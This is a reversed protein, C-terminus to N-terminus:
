WNEGIAARAFHWRRQSPIDDVSQSAAIWDIPSFAGALLALFVNGVQLGVLIGVFLGAVFIRMRRVIERVIGAIILMGGVAHHRDLLLASRQVPGPAAHERCHRM